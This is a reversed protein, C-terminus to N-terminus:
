SVLVGSGYSLFQPDTGKKFEYVEVVVAANVTTRYLDPGGISRTKKTSAPGSSIQINLLSKKVTEFPIQTEIVDDALIPQAVSVLLFILILPKALPRMDRRGMLHM